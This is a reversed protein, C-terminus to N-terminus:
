HYRIILLIIMRTGQVSVNKISDSDSVIKMMKSMTFFWYYFHNYDSICKMRRYIFYLKTQILSSCGWWSYSLYDHNRDRTRGIVDILLVIKTAISMMIVIQLLTDIMIVIEVVFKAEDDIDFDSSKVIGNLFICISTMGILKQFELIRMCIRYM